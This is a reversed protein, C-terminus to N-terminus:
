SKFYICPVHTLLACQALLSRCLHLFQQFMLYNTELLVKKKNSNQKFIEVQQGLTPQSVSPLFHFGFM